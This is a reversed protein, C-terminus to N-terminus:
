QSPCHLGPSVGSVGVDTSLLFSRFVAVMQLGVPLEEIQRRIGVEEGLLVAGDNFGISSRTLEESNRGVSEYPGGEQLKQRRFAL